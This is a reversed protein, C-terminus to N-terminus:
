EKIFPGFSSQIKRDLEPFFERFQSELSDLHKLLPPISNNMNNDFSARRSLGSLARDLGDLNAYSLLWNQASMYKLTRLARENYLHKSKELVNYVETCFFPLEIPSYNNWYKALFHDYYVDQVVAAYKGFYPYLLKRSELVQAHGDTFEDILHHIKVGTYVDEPLSDIEKGRITDAIFNGVM